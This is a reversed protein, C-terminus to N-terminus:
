NSSALRRLLSLSPAFFYGGGTPIVWHAITTLAHRDDAHRIEGTRERTASTAQGVLFDHGAAGEPGAARNMWANNLTEFQDSISTQYSMFLLGRQGDDAAQEAPTSPFERGWTIGRRLVHFTLTRDAGGQDTPLDRPNVKRIHALRPCISGPVDAPAGDVTRLEAPAVLGEEIQAFPDSSVDIPTATEAFGFHNVSFRDGMPDPEEAAPSRMLATGKPWRGVLLAALREPTMGPMREAEGAVFARFAAVDQRLRRFVLFSGNDMWDAGGAARSGEREPDDDRQKGYGFVFQGPWILAQGPRSFRRARVDAPDIYRRTLFHREGDSLRGRAGPQSIGDRFGFHEVEGPLVAGTQEYVVRLGASEASQRLEQVRDILADPEDAAVTLLLEPTTEPTGGVIWRGKHGEDGVTRPDGLTGSLNAMGAKFSRDRIPGTDLGLWRLGNVDLALNMWVPSPPRPEGRRLASRRVNRFESVQALTSVLPLVRGLWERAADLGDAPVTFGVLTQNFVNFGPLINGQIDDVALVPELPAGAVAPGTVLDSDLDFIPM